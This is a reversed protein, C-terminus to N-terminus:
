KTAKREDRGGALAVAALGWWIISVTDDAWVPLLLGILALGVGGGFLGLAIWDTRRQWLRWMIISFIALFFILGLWGSEHAIFLYQNEIIIPSIGSLSASGTSGVGAGLPQEFLRRMGEGLSSAHEENSSVESGGAPNEHLLVNSIFYSDRGAILAGFLAFLVAVSIIWARRSLKRLITAGLVVGVAIIGGVLASRSYSVWLAVVGFLALIGGGILYRRDSRWIKTRTAAATVLALVIGAYAGLPNPGRLTSNVRIYDPNKDVTLYPMITEKSYGIHSLIDAPLFLQLTAFGIVVYAGITAIIVFLRRYEPMAKIAAYVLVFFLLYRLDIALGALTPLLGQYFAAILGLHLLTYLLIFRFLWDQTFTQWLKRRTLIICALLAALTMLIEKWSKILLEHDPLLAGFGVSLPAHFVIGGFIVALTILFTKELISPKM